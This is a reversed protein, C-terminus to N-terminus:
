SSIPHELFSVATCGIDIAWRTSLDDYLWKRDHIPAGSLRWALRANPAPSIIM